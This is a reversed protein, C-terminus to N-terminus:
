RLFLEHTVEHRCPVFHHVVIAEVEGSSLSLTMSRKRLYESNRIPSGCAIPDRCSAPAADILFPDLAVVVEYDTSHEKITNRFQSRSPRRLQGSASRRGPASAGPRANVTTTSSSGTPQLPLCRRYSATSM